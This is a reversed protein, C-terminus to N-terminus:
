HVQNGAKQLKRATKKPSAAKKAKPSAARKASKATTQGLKKRTAHKTKQQLDDRASTSYPDKLARHWVARLGTPSRPDAVVQRRELLIGARRLQQYGREATRESVGYWKQAREVAMAFSLKQSTEALIILFMTKGPLTLEDVLGGTWYTYPIVFYGPGLTRRSQGPRTWAKGLGDELLPKVIVKSGSAQRTILRRKALADFAKSAAASSCPVKGRSLMRAWTGLPLPSDLVPELAHLLLLADLPREQRAHVMAGLISPRSKETNPRQVFIKRLPAYGRLAQDLLQTRLAPGDAPLEDVIHAFPDSM